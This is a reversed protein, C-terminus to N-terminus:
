LQENAAFAQFWQNAITKQEQSSMTQLGDPANGAAIKHLAAYEEGLVAEIYPGVVAGHVFNLTRGEHMLYFYHAGEETKSEPQRDTYKHLFPGDIRHDYRETSPLKGLEDDASTVTVILSGPSLDEYRDRLAQRGTASFVVDAKELGKHLDDTVRFGHALAEMRRLPDREVVITRQGLYDAISSGIKGYGIVIAQKQSLLEGNQRLIADTSFVISEGVKRDEAEKLGSRAVSVVPISLDDQEQRQEYRQHGNETAEVVGIVKVKDRALTEQLAGPTQAFYGGHDMLIIRRHQPELSERIASVIFDPNECGSRGWKKVPFSNDPLYHLNDLSTGKPVLAVLNGVSDCAQLFIDRGPLIHNVNIIALDPHRAKSESLLEYFHKTKEREGPSLTYEPRHRELTTRLEQALARIERLQESAEQIQQLPEAVERKEVPKGEARQAQGDANDLFQQLRQTATEIAQAATAASRQADNQSPQLGKTRDIYPRNRDGQHADTVSRIEGKVM